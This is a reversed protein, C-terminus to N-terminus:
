NFLEDRELGRNPWNRKFHTRLHRQIIPHEVLEKYRNLNPSPIDISSSYIEEKLNLYEKFIEDVEKYTKVGLQEVDSNSIGLGDTPVIDICSRLAYAKGLERQGIFREVLHNSIKYVETKWLNQIMSYDGVDGCITFFGLMEETKNDTSLVMGRNIFAINYLHIMRLRAKINGLRIKDKIPFDNTYDFPRFKEREDIEESLCTFANSLDVEKFDICFHEGILNANKIERNTNTEIPMSRGILHISLEECVPEAIACVLASDIGGSVGVVLSKLENYVIYKKLAFRINSVVKECNM